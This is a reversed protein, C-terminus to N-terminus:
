IVKGSIPSNVDSTAKVSEVAGFSEGQKVIAGVEPLEVYVVDDLHDQALNTIGTTASNGNVKVWEHSDVYKLDKLIAYKVLNHSLGNAEKGVHSLVLGLAKQLCHIDIVLGGWECLSKGGKHIEVVAMLSDTEFSRKLNRSLLMELGFKIALLEAHFASDISSFCRTAAYIVEKTSGRTIAAVVTVKSNANYTADM